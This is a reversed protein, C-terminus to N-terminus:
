YRSSKAPPNAYPSKPPDSQLQQSGYTGSARWDSSAQSAVATANQGPALQNSPGSKKTMQVIVMEQAPRYTTVPTQITRKEAIMDTKTTPMQVTTPRAEWRTVPVYEYTWYPQVFPNWQGVLRPVYQYQTVPTLYTQQQTQYQTSVQPRFYTEEKTQHEIVPVYRTVPRRVVEYTEGDIVETTVKDQGQGVSQSAGLGLNLLSLCLLFALKQNM